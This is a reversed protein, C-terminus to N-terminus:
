WCPDSGGQRTDGLHLKGGGQKPQRRAESEANTRYASSRPDGEHMVTTM